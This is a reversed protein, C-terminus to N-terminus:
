KELKEWDFQVVTPFNKDNILREYVEACDEPSHTEGIMEKINIRNNACLKLVTKIDDATTFYGPYSEESPRAM